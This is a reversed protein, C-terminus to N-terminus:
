RQSHRMRGGVPHLAELRAMQSEDLIEALEAQMTEHHAQMRERHPHEGSAHVEKREAQRQEFLENLAANQEDSLELVTGFVEMLRAHRAEMHTQMAEENVPGPKGDRSRQHFGQGSHTARDIRHHNEGVIKLLGDFQERSLIGHATEVFDLMPFSSSALRSERDGAHRAAMEVHLEEFAAGLETTQEASLGLLEAIEAQSPLKTSTANATSETADAELVGSESDSCALLGVLGLVLFGYMTHKKM